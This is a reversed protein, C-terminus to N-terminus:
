AFQDIKIKMRTQIDDFWCSVLQKHLVRAFWKRERKEIMRSDSTSQLTMEFKLFDFTFRSRSYAFIRFIWVHDFTM